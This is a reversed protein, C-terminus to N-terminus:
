EGKKEGVLMVNVTVIASYDSIVIIFNRAQIFYLGTLHGANVCQKAIRWHYAFRPDM